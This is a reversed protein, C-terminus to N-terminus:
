KSKRWIEHMKQTTLRAFARVIWQRGIDFFDVGDGSIGRATLTLVYMPRGDSGRYAPHIDVHLRGIWRGDNETIPFRLHCNLDETRGPFADQSFPPWFSFVEEVQDWRDWGDGAVIHNVYTVECQNVLVTGLDEEAVFNRFSEFDLDFAPRIVPEYRPYTGNVDAKRWNKIFRDSQVQIMESGAEDLLWVRNPALSDVAEFKIQPPQFTSEHREFTAALESHSQTRPFRDRVRQWFLGLHVIQFLALREFQASLVTEVVPPNDFCPLANNHESNM